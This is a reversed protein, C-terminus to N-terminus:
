NEFVLANLLVDCGFQKNFNQLSLGLVANTITKEQNLNQIKIKEIEFVLIKGSNTATKVDIYRSNEIKYKGLLFDSTNIEFIKKFTKFSILIVPKGSIKDILINGTDLFANTIIKKLNYFISIKFIYNQEQTKRKIYKLLDFVFKSLVIIFIVFIGIAGDYSFVGNEITFNPYLSFLVGFCIGGMIGTLILFLFYLLFFKKFSNIKFSTCIMLVGLFLKIFILLMIENIEVLPLFLSFLMGILSSFILRLHKIECNLIKGCLFLLLYNIVFNDIIVQEVYIGM